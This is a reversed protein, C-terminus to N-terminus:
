VIIYDSLGVDLRIYLGMECMCLKVLLKICMAGPHISCVFVAGFAYLTWEFWAYIICIGRYRCQNSPHKLDIQASGGFAQCRCIPCRAHVSDGRRSWM